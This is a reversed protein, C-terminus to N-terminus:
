RIREAKHNHLVEITDGDLVGVVQGSFSAALVPAEIILFCSILAIMNIAYFASTSFYETKNDM